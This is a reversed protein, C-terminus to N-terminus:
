KGDTEVRSISAEFPFEDGNARLGFSQGPQNMTRTTIGTRTFADVHKVHKERLRDPILLDLHRGIINAASYGFM